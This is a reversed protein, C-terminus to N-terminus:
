EMFVSLSCFRFCGVLLATAGLLSIRKAAAKELAVARMAEAPQLQTAGLLGELQKCLFAVDNSGKAIGALVLKLLVTESKATMLSSCLKYVNEKRNSRLM